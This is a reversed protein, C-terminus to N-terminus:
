SASRRGALRGVAALGVFLALIAGAASFYIATVTPPLGGAAVIAAMAAFIGASMVNTITNLLVTYRGSTDALAVLGFFYINGWSWAINFVVMAVAFSLPSDAVSTLICAVVGMVSGIILPARRGLRDRLYTATLSGILSFLTAMALVNGVQQLGIGANEGIRGSFTFIAAIYVHWLVWGAIAFGIAYRMAAGLHVSEVSPARVAPLSPPLVKIAWIAFPSLVLPIAFLGSLGFTDSLWPVLSTASAQVLTGVTTFIGFTREPSPGFGLYGYALGLALTSGITELPRMTAVVWFSPSLVLVVNAIVILTLGIGAMVRRNLRLVFLGLLGGAVISATTTVSQLGSMTADTIGLDAVIASIAVPLVLVPILLYCTLIIAAWRYRATGAEAMAAALAREDQDWQASGPAVGPGDASM